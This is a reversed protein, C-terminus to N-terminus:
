AQFIDKVALSFGPLQEGGDLVDDIRLTKPPQGPRYIEVEKVDPDVLWVVTGASLYTAIKTRVKSPRDTPSLVEVALDPPNPNYTVELSKPQRAKSVFAVDPLYRHGAVLYGGAEGSVCGLDHSEVYAIMRGLIRAAVLSSRYNTVVEVIEGGIYEFLRDENEPLGIFREFEELTVISTQVAM